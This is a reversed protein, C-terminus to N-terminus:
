GALMGSRYGAQGINTCHQEDDCCKARFYRTLPSMIVKRNGRLLDLIPKCNQLLGKAQKPSAVELRGEVHM